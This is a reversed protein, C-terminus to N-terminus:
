EVNQVQERIKELEDKMAVALGGITTDGSKAGPTNVERHIEQAIFNLKRGEAHESALSQRFLNLHPFLASLTPNSGM